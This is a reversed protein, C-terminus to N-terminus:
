PTNLGRTRLLREYMAFVVYALALEGAGVILMRALERSWTWVAAGAIVARAASIGYTLPILASIGRLLPPLDATPFNAGCLFMVSLYVVNMLNTVDRLFLGLGSIALGVGAMAFSAVMLVLLLAPMSAGGLDLGFVAWGWLVGAVGSVFGDLAFPIMRGVFLGLRNAPSLITLPLTGVWREESFTLALRFVVGFAVFQVANGAAVYAMQSEGGVYRALSAFIAMQLFPVLIRAALM